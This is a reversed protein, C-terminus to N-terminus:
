APIRNFIEHNSQNDDQKGNVVICRKSIEPMQTHTLDSTSVILEGLVGLAFLHLSALGNLSAAVLFFLSKGQTWELAMAVGSLAGFFAAM